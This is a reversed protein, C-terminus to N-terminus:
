IGSLASMSLWGKSIPSKLNSNRKVAPAPKGMKKEQQKAFRLNAQRQQPTQAQMHMLGTSCFSLQGIGGVM